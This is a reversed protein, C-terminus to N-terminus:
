RPDVAESWASTHPPILLDTGAAARLAEDRRTGRERSSRAGASAPHRGGADAAREHRTGAPEKGARPRPTSPPAARRLVPPARRPDTGARQHQARRAPPRHVAVRGRWYVEVARQDHPAFALEVDDGRRARDARRGHLRPRRPPRRRPTRAGLAARDAAAARGRAGGTAAVDPGGDLAALADPRRPQPAAARRQLRAGLRSAPWWSPSRWHHARRTSSAATTVRGARGHPCGPSSAMRSPATYASSRARRTRPTPGPRTSTSASRWRGGARGGRRRVGARSGVAAPGPARRLPRPRLGPPDRRAARGASRRFQAAALDGLGHYARSTTSFCRSGRAGAGEAGRHCSSRRFSSTTARGSPTATRRRTAYICATSAAVLRAAVRRLASPRRSSALSRPKCRACRRRSSGASARRAGCRRSTAAVGCTPTACSRRSCSGARVRVAASSRGALRSGAGCRASASVPELRPRASRARVCSAATAGRSWIPCSGVPEQLLRGGDHEDGDHEDDGSRAMAIARGVSLRVRHRFLYNSSGHAAFLPAPAPFRRLSGVAGARVTPWPGSQGPPRSRRLTVRLLCAARPAVAAGYSLGQQQSAHHRGMSM